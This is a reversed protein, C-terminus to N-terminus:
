VLSEHNYVYPLSFSIVCVSNLDVVEPECVSCAIQEKLPPWIVVCKFFNFVHTCVDAQGIYCWLKSLVGPLSEAYACCSRHDYHMGNTVRLVVYALFQLFVCLHAAASVENCAGCSVALM